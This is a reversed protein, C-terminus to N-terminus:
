THALEPFRLKQQAFPNEKNQLVFLADSGKAVPEAQYPSADMPPFGLVVSETGPPAALRIVESLAMGANCFADLCHLVKGEQEAIVIADSTPEYYVCDKLFSGCYFMLLGFNCIVQLASYPNTAAYRRELLERDQPLSLNLRRASGAPNEVAARFEYEAQMQFGFRPYFDLVSENAFLFMGDCRSEWDQLVERMLFRALGRNRYAPDTMVTGLQIYHRQKGQWLLEMRNVSVNAVATNGDFLTYPLNSETWYGDQYWHEFSLQFTKEALTNFAIRLGDCLM